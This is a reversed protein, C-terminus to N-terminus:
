TTSTMHDMLMSTTALIERGVYVQKNASAKLSWKALTLHGNELEICTIGLPHIVSGTNCYSSSNPSIMPRHTHGSIVIYASTSVPSTTEKPKKTPYSGTNQYRELLAPNWHHLRQETKKKLHNNKAASTPDPIGLSELPRWFYRVLFRSLRWFTSNLLSAQHGHFLCIDKYIGNGRLIISEYFPMSPCLSCKCFLDDHYFSSFAKQCFNAQKKIMDHNGYLSYFRNKQHFKSLMAFSNPHMEKIKEMSRNEWLEDGDGLEIYTFGKQYYRRLAALSLMEKKTFNDNANGCGRHCDSFLVYKSHSSLPLTYANAFAKTIKMDYNM